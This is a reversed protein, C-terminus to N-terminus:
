RELLLRGDSIELRDFRSLYRMGLLSTDMEGQNVVAVVNRDRMDGVVVEDLSVRATRVVGNATGASGTYALGDPDIGVRRADKQTLVMDTAGTDVVFETAVGNVDLTLYYHGDFSRPVEIRGSDLVLQRPAVDHKIDEWLGYGGVAGLFIFCWALVNRLNTGIGDRNSAVFWGLLAFGLLGLYFLRAIEDGTMASVYAGCRPTLLAFM